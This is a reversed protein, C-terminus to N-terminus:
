ILCKGIGLSFSIRLVRFNRKFAFIFYKKISLYNVEGKGLFPIRLVRLAINLAWIFCNLIDLSLMDLHGFFFNEVDRFCLEIGLYLVELPESFESGSAWFLM